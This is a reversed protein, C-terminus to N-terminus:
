DWLFELMIVLVIYKVVSRWVAQLAVAGNGQILAVHEGHACFGTVIGKNAGGEM